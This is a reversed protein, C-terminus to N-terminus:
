EEQSPILIKGHEDQEIVVASKDAATKKRERTQRAIEVLSPPKVGSELVGIELARQYSEFTSPIYEGDNKGSSSGHPASTTGGKSEFPKVRQLSGMTNLSGGGGVSAGGVNNQAHAHGAAVFLLLAAVFIMKKMTNTGRSLRRNFGASLRQM